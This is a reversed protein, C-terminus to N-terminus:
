LTRECSSGDSHGVSGGATICSAPEVYDLTSTTATPTVNVGGADSITENTDRSVLEWVYKGNYRMLVCGYTDCNQPPTPLAIKGMEIAASSSIKDNTIYGGTATKVVGSNDTVLIANRDDQKTGVAKDLKDAVPAFVGFVGGSSVLNTSNETPLSDVTMADMKGDLADYVGGSSVLNTSNATPTADITTTDMKGDLSEDIGDLHIVIDKIDSDVDNVFEALGIIGGGNELTTVAAAITEADANASGVMIINDREDVYQKSAIQANAVFPMFLMIVFVSTIKKM